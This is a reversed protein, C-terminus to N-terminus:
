ECERVVLAGVREDVLELALPKGSVAFRHVGAAARQPAHADAGVHRAFGGTRRAVLELDLAVVADDRRGLLTGMVESSQHTMATIASDVSNAKKRPKGRSNM